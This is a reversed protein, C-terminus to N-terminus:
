EFARGKRRETTSSDFTNLLIFCVCLLTLFRSIFIFIYKNEHYPSSLIIRGFAEFISPRTKNSFKELGNELSKKCLKEIVPPLIVFSHKESHCCTLRRLKEEYFECLTSCDSFDSGKVKASRIDARPPFQSHSRSFKWPLHRTSFQRWESAAEGSELRHHDNFLNDMSYKLCFSKCWFPAGDAAALRLCGQWLFRLEFDRGLLCM